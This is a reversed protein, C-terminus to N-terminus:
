GLAISGRDLRITVRGTNFWASWSGAACNAKNIVTPMILANYEAVKNSRAFTM